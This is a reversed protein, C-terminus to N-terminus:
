KHPKQYLDLTKLPLPLQELGETEEQNDKAKLLYAQPEPSLSIKGYRYFYAYYSWERFLESGIQITAEQPLSQICMKLDTLKDKDRVHIGFFHSNVGIAAIFLILSLPLLFKTSLLRYSKKKFILQFQNVLFLNAALCFLSFTPIIYFTSQKMSVMIPLVGSLGCLVLPWFYLSTFISKTKLGYKRVAWSILCLILIVLIEEFFRRLIYFRSDVSQVNKLSALVQINIYSELANWGEPIFLWLIFFPTFLGIFLFLYIRLVAKWQKNILGFFFPFSLPFLATPGKTLFGAFLFLGAWFGFPFQRNKFYHIQLLVSSLIFIMSTNELLNNPAGWIIKPISIWLFLSLVGWKFDTKAAILKWAYLMLVATILYCLLSYLREVWFYDGFASFFLSQLGFALPPHDYFHEGLTHTFTPDWFSGIGEAMNRAITAYYIGDMFMGESFLQPSLILLFLSLWSFFHWISNGFIKM